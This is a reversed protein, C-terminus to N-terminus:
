DWGPPNTICTRCRRYQGDVSLSVIETPHAATFLYCVARDCGYTSCPEVDRGRHPHTCSTCWWSPGVRWDPSADPPDLAQSCSAAAQPAGSKPSRTANQDRGSCWLPREDGDISPPFSPPPRDPGRVPPSPGLHRQVLPQLHTTVRGAASGLRQALAMAKTAVGRRWGNGATHTPSAATALGTPVRVGPADSSGGVSLDGGGKREGEEETGGEPAPPHPPPTHHTHTHHTTPPHPHPRPNTNNPTHQLRQISPTATHTATTNITDSHKTTTNTAPHTAPNTNTRSRKNGKASQDDTPPRKKSHTHLPTPKLRKPEPKASNYDSFYGEDYTVHIEEGKQIDRTARIYIGIEKNRPQVRPM